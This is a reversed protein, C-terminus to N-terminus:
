GTTSKTISTYVHVIAVVIDGFTIGITNVAGYCNVFGFTTFFYITVGEDVLFFVLVM